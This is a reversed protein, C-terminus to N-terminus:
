TAVIQNTQRCHNKLPEEFVKQYENCDECYMLGKPNKRGLV